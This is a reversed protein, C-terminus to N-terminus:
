SRSVKFLLKAFDAKQLDCVSAGLAGSTVKPDSCVMSIYHSHCIVLIMDTM